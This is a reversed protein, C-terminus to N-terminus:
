FISSLQVPALAPLSPLLQREGRTLESTDERGGRFQKKYVRTEVLGPDTGIARFEAGDDDIVFDAHVTVGL